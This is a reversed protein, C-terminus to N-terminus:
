NSDSDQLIYLRNIWIHRLGLRRTIQIADLFTASLLNSPIEDQFRGLNAMTASGTEKSEKPVDGWRYSLAAWKGKTGNSVLLRVPDADSVGIDIVRTPFPPDENMNNGLQCCDHNSSCDNIWEAALRLSDSGSGTPDVSRGPIIHSLIDDDKTFLRIQKPQPITPPNPEFSWGFIHADFADNSDGVISRFSLSHTGLDGGHDISADEAMPLSATILNCFCCNTRSVSDRLTRASSALVYAIEGRNIGRRMPDLSQWLTALCTNCLAKNQQHILSRMEDQWKKMAVHDGEQLDCEDM